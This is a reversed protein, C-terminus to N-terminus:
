GGVPRMAALKDEIVDFARQYDDRTTDYDKTISNLGFASHVKDLADMLAQKVPDVDGRPADPDFGAMCEEPYGCLACDGDYPRLIDCM